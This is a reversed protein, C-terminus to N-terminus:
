EDELTTFEKVVSEAAKAEREKNKELGRYFSHTATRAIVDVHAMVKHLPLKLELISPMHQALVRRVEMIIESHSQWWGETSGTAVICYEGIRKKPISEWEMVLHRGITNKPPWGFRQRTKNGTAQGPPEQVVVFYRNAVECLIGQCDFDFSTHDRIEPKTTLYKSTPTAASISAYAEAIDLTPNNGHLGLLAATGMSVAPAFATADLYHQSLDSLDHTIHPFEPEPTDYSYGRTTSDMIRTDQPLESQVMLHELKHHAFPLDTLKRSLTPRISIPQSYGLLLSFTQISPRASLVLASM